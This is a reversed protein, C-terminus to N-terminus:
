GCLILISSSTKKRKFIGKQIIIVYTQLCDTSGQEDSKNIKIPQSPKCTIIKIYCVFVEILLIMVMPGVYWENIQTNM